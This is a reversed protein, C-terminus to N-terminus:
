SSPSVSPAPWSTEEIASSPFTLAKKETDSLVHDPTQPSVAVLEAGLDRIRPLVGQYARLQLDCFPCWGGRYFTLVVPGRALQSALHFSTGHADPLTLDPAKAGVQLAREPLGGENVKRTENSAKELIGPPANKKVNVLFADITDALQTKSALPNQM